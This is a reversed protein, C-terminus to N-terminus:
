TIIKRGDSDTTLSGSGANTINFEKPLIMKLKALKTENLASKVTTSGDADTYTLNNITLPTVILSFNSEKNPPVERRIGQKSINLDM